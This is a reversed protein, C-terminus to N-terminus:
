YGEILNSPPSKLSGILQLELLILVFSLSFDGFRRAPSTRCHSNANQDKFNQFNQLWAGQYITIPVWYKLVM